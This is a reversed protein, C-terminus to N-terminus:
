EGEAAELSSKDKRGSTKGTLSGYCLTREETPYGGGFVLFTAQEEKEPIVTIDIESRFRITM